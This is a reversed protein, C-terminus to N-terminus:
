FPFSHVLEVVEQLILDRDILVDKSHLVLVVGGLGFQLGLEAVEVHALALGRFHQGGLLVFYLSQMLDDVSVAFLFVIPPILELIPHSLLM